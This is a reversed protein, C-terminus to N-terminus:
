SFFLLESCFSLINKTWLSLYTKLFLATEFNIVEIYKQLHQRMPLPMLCWRHMLSAVMQEHLSRVSINQRRFMPRRRAKLQIIPLAPLSVVLILPLPIHVVPAAWDRHTCTRIVAASVASMTRLKVFLHCGRINPWMAKAPMIVQWHWLPIAM